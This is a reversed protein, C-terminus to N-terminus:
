IKGRIIKFSKDLTWDESVVQPKPLAFLDLESTNSWHTFPQFVFIKWDKDCYEPCKDHCNPNYAVAITNGIM